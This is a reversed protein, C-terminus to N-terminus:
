NLTDETVSLIAGPGVGGGGPGPVLGGGSGPVGGGMVGIKFVFDPLPDFMARIIPTM